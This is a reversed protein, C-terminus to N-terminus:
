RHKMVPPRSLSRRNHLLPHPWALEAAIAAHISKSGLCWAGCARPRSARRCAPQTMQAENPSASSSTESVCLQRQHRETSERGALNSLRSPVAFEKRCYPRRSSAQRGSRSPPITRTVRHQDKQMRRARSAERLVGGLRGITPRICLAPFHSEGVFRPSGRSRLAAVPMAPDVSGGEPAAVAEPLWVQEAFSRLQEIRLADTTTTLLHMANHGLKPLEVNLLGFLRKGKVFEFTIQAGLLDAASPTNEKLRLLKSKLEARKNAFDASLSANNAAIIGEIIKRAEDFSINLAESLHEPKCFQHEVDTLPTVFLECRDPLKKSKRSLLWAVEEPLM